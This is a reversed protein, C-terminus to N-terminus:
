QHSHFSVFWIYLCLKSAPLTCCWCRESCGRGPSVSLRGAYKCTQVLVDCAIWNCYDSSVASNLKFNAVVAFLSFIQKLSFWFPKDVQRLWFRCQLGKFESIRDKITKVCKDAPLSLDQMNETTATMCLIVNRCLVSDICLRISVTSRVWDQKIGISLTVNLTLLNPSNWRECGQKSADKGLSSHEAHYHWPGRDQRHTQTQWLNLRNRQKLHGEVSPRDVAVIWSLWGASAPSRWQSPCVIAAVTAKLISSMENTLPMAPKLADNLLLASMSLPPKTTSCGGATHSSGPEFRM